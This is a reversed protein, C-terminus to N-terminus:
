YHCCRAFPARMLPGNNMRSTVTLSHREWTSYEAAHAANVSIFWKRSRNGLELASHIFVNNGGLPCPGSIFPYQFSPDLLGVNWDIMLPSLTSDYLFPGLIIDADHQQSFVLCQRSCAALSTQLQSSFVNSPVLCDAASDCGNCFCLQKLTILITSIMHWLAQCIWNNRHM